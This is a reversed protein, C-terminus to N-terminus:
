WLALAAVAILEKTKEDLLNGKTAAGSMAAFGSM